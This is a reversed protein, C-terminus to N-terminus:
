DDLGMAKRSAEKYKILDTMKGSRLYKKQYRDAEHASSMDSGGDGLGMAKRSADKYKILDTMKGSKLYDDKYTDAWRASSMDSRFSRRSYSRKSYSPMRSNNEEGPYTIWNGEATKLPRGLYDYPMDNNVQKKQKQNETTSTQTQEVYHIKYGKLDYM